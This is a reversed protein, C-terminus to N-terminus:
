FKRYVSERSTIELILFNLKNESLSYIIHYGGVKGRYINIHSTEKRLRRCFNLCFGELSFIVQNSLAGLM